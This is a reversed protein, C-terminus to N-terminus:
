REENQVQGLLITTPPFERMVGRKKPEERSQLDINGKARKRAGKHRGQNNKRRREEVENKEIVQEMSLLNNTIANSTRQTLSKNQLSDLTNLNDIISPHRYNM